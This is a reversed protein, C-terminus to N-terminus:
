DGISYAALAVPDLIEIQRHGVKILGEQELQKIASNVTQRVHGTMDALDSQTMRLVSVEVAGDCEKSNRDLIALRGAVQALVSPKRMMCVIEILSAFRGAMLASLSGFFEPESSLIHSVAHIPVRWTRTPVFARASVMTHVAGTAAIEGFWYGPSAVHLLLRQGGHDGKEFHVAGEVLGFLGQAPCDEPYISEGADYTELRGFGFLSEALSPALSGFWTGRRLQTYIEHHRTQSM